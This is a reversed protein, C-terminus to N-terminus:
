INLPYMEDLRFTNKEQSSYRVSRMDVSDMAKRRWGVSCTRELLGNRRGLLAFDVAFVTWVGRVESLVCKESRNKGYFKNM